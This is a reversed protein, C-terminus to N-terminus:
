LYGGSLPIAGAPPLALLARMEDEGARRPGLAVTQWALDPTRHDDPPTAVFTGRGPRAEVVGQAVLQRIADAVTVPSAQHRATLERVSPLRAGATAGAALRRLDQIVRDAANSNDM